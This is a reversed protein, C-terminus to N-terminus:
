INIIYLKLTLGIPGVFMMSCNPHLQHYYPNTWSHVIEQDWYVMAIEFKNPFITCSPVTYWTKKKVTASKWVFGSPALKKLPCRVDDSHHIGFLGSAPQSDHCGMKFLHWLTPIHCAQFPNFGDSVRECIYIYQIYIYVTYIYVTYIYIYLLYIYIYVTYIYVTYIYVTYIYLIYIYICYIYIYVTYIYINMCNWIYIYIHYGGSLCFLSFHKWSAFQIIKVEYKMMNWWIELNGM